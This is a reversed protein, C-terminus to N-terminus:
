HSFVKYQVNSGEHVSVRLDIVIAKREMVCHFSVDSLKFEKM